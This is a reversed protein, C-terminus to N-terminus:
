ELSYQLDLIVQFSNKTVESNLNGEWYNFLEFTTAANLTINGLYLGAGGTFVYGTAQDGVIDSKAFHPNTYIGCRIPLRIDKEIYIYEAGIHFSNIDYDSKAQETEGKFDDSYSWPRYHFDAAILFQSHVQYSIGFNVFTPIDRIISVNDTDNSLSYPLILNLGMTFDENFKYLAGIEASYGKYSNSEFSQQGHIDFNDNFNGKSYSFAGGLSLTSNIRLAIVAKYLNIGGEEKYTRPITGETTFERNFDFQPHYVLGATVPIGALNFPIALATYNFQWQNKLRINPQNDPNVYSMSGFGFSGSLAMQFSPISALGASNYAPSFIDGEIATYANAMSASRASFILADRNQAFLLNATIFIIILVTFYLPKM